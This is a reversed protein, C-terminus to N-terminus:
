NSMNVSMFLRACRWNIIIIIPNGLSRDIVIVIVVLVNIQRHPLTTILLHVVVFHLPCLITPRNNTHCGAFTSRLWVSHCRIFLFYNIPIINIFTYLDIIAENIECVFILCVYVCILQHARTPKAYFPSSEFELSNILQNLWRFSIFYIDLIEKSHLYLYLQDDITTNKTCCFIM